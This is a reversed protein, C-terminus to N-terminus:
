NPFLASFEYFHVCLLININLKFDYCMYCTCHVSPLPFFVPPFIDPTDFIIPPFIDPPIQRYGPCNCDGHGRNGCWVQESICDTVYDKNIVM